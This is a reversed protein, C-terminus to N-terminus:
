SPPFFAQLAGFSAVTNSPVFYAPFHVCLSIGMVLCPQSPSVPTVHIMSVSLIFWIIHFNPFCPRQSTINTVAWFMYCPVAPFFYWPESYILLGM